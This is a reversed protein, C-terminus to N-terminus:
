LLAKENLKAILRKVMEEPTGELILRERELKQEYVTGVRTPSGVLGITQKDVSIDNASWEKYEKDMLTLIGEATATRPTNIDRSVSILLPLTGVIKLYGYELDRTATVGRADDVICETVASIHPLGLLEAVQPGVQQTAGDAAENGCVIIDVPSLEKIGAALVYATALSDAAAFARDCLLIAADAGLTLAWDLVEKAQPPGMSIATVKGGHRERLRLAEEIANEDLPNLISPIKERQISGTDPDLTIESFYDPNAVQKVCVVINLSM